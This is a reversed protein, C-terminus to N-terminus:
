EIIRQDIEAHADTHHCEIRRGRILSGAPLELGIKAHCAIQVSVRLPRRHIKEVCWDASAVGGM